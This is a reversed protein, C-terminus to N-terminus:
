DFVIMKSVSLLYGNESAIKIAGIESDGEYGINDRAWLLFDNQEMSDWYAYTHCNTKFIEDIENDSLMSLEANSYAKTM